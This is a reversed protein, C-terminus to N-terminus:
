ASKLLSTLTTKITKITAKRSMGRHMRLHNWSEFSLALDVAEVLDAPQNEMEPFFRLAQKRFKDCLKQYNKRLLDYRWLQVLTARIYPAFMECNAARETVLQDIRSQLSGDPHIVPLESYRKYLIEDGEVYLKEMESFHRFVTRIGLGSQDAVQQATPVLNGSEYLTFAAEIIAQRSRI